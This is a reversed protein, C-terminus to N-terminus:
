SLFNLKKKGGEIDEESVPGFGLHTQELMRSMRVKESSEQGEQRGVGCGVELYKYVDKCKREYQKILLLIPFLEVNLLPHISLIYYIWM